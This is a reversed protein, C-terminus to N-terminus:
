NALRPTQKVIEAFQPLAQLKALEPDSRVFQAPYGKALAEQLAPLAEQQDGALWAVVAQAYVISGDSPDISRARRIFDAARTKDGKKAYYLAIRGM